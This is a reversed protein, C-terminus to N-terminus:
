KGQEKRAEDLRALASDLLVITHNARRETMAISVDRAREAVAVLAAIEEASLQPVDDVLAYDVVEEADRTVHWDEETRPRRETETVCGYARTYEDPSSLPAALWAALARGLRKYEPSYWASECMAAPTQGLAARLEADAERESRAPAAKLARLEADKAGMERAWREGEAAHDKTMKDIEARWSRAQALASDRDVQLQAVQRTREDLQARTAAHGKMESALADNAGRLADTMDSLIAESPASAPPASDILALAAQKFEYADLSSDCVLRFEGGVVVLANRELLARLKRAAESEVVVERVPSPAPPTSSAFAELSRVLIAGYHWAKIKDWPFQCRSILDHVARAEPWDGVPRSRELEAIRADKAALAEEMADLQGKLVDREALVRSWYLSNPAVPTDERMWRRAESEAKELESM